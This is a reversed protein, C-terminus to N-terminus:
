GRLGTTTSFAPFIAAPALAAALWVPLMAPLWAAIRAPKRRAPTMSAASVSAKKSAMSAAATPRRLFGARLMAMTVMEPPGDTSAASAASRAPSASGVSPWAVM